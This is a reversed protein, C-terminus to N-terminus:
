EAVFMIGVDVLEEETAVGEAAAGGLEVAVGAVVVAVVVGLASWALVAWLAEKGILVGALVGGAVVALSKSGSADARRSLLM